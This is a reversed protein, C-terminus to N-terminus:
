YTRVHSCRSDEAPPERRGPHLPPSTTAPSSVAGRRPRFKRVRTRRGVGRPRRTRAVHTCAAACTYTYVHVRVYRTRALERTHPARVFAAPSHFPGAPQRSPPRSILLGPSAGRGPYFGTRQRDPPTPPTPPPPAPYPTSSRRRAKM